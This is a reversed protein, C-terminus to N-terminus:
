QWNSLHNARQEETFHHIENEREKQHLAHIAANKIEPRESNLFPFIIYQSLIGYIM